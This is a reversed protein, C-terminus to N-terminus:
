QEERTTYGAQARWDDCIGEPEEIWQLDNVRLDPHTTGVWEHDSDTDMDSESEDSRTGDSEDSSSSEMEQNPPELNQPDQNSGTAASNSLSLVRAGHKSEQFTGDPLTWQVKWKM